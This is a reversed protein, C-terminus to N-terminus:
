ALDNFVEEIAATRDPLDFEQMRHLAERPTESRPKWGGRIPSLTLPSLKPGLEPSEIIEGDKGFLIPSLPIRTPMYLANEDEDNRRYWAEDILEEGSIFNKEFQEWFAAKRMKTAVDRMSRGFMEVHEKQRLWHNEHQLADLLIKLGAPASQPASHENPVMGVPITSTEQTVSGNEARDNRALREELYEIKTAQARVQKRIENAEHEAKMLKDHLQEHDGVKNTADRYKAGLHEIELSKTEIVRERELLSLRAAKHEAKLNELQVTAEENRRRAAEVEQAKQSWPTPGHEFEVNNMLVSAYEIWWGLKTITLEMKAIDAECYFLLLGNLDFNLFASSRNEEELATNVVKLTNKAWESAKRSLNALYTDQEVVAELGEEFVPYLSDAKLANLTKLLKQACLMGRNFNTAVTTFTELLSSASESLEECDTALFKLMTVLVAINSDLYQLSSTISRVRALTEDEPLAALAEQRSSLVADQIKIARAFSGTLEALNVEDVKLGDVGQDLTKEITILEQYTPGYSAFDSLSTVTMASWLRDSGIKIVDLHHIAECCLLRSLAEDIGGNFSLQRDTTVLLSSILGAKSAISKATFYAKLSESNGFDTSQTLTWIALKESYEDAQLKRLESTIEKNTAQVNSARLRRNLDMVENFRGTTDKVQAETMNRSSEADAMKGQLEFVLDRFKTILDEQDAMVTSQEALRQTQDALELDKAELEARLEEEQEIHQVELEDNLERLSELDHIIAEQNAVRDELEQTKATLENSIDEWEASADIQTRLHDIIDKNNAIQEQLVENEQQLQEHQGADAELELIRAKQDREKEETMEKLTILAQRLRDNEHQLRYYGAQEREEATMDATLLEAEERLIELETEREELLSRLNELEAEAAEAREEAMEKDVCAMDLDVEYEQEAKTLRDNEATLDQVKAKYDVSDQHLAQCKAQLKQIIAHYRDREEKTQSLEKFREQDESHQKELHRIKTQLTDVNSDRRSKSTTSSISPALSVRPGSQSSKAATESASTNTSFSTVSPKRIPARLSTSSSSSSPVVSQRRNIISTRPAPKPAIVSSPRPKPTPASPKAKPQVKAAPAPKPAAPKPAPQSVIRVVNTERIFLGHAPPCDFYREGRVSGDNKGHPSPLEIGLWLGDAVHIPGIYRVLGHQHTSTEVTQGIKFESM